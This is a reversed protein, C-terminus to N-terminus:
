SNIGVHAAPATNRGRLGCPADLPACARGEPRPAYRPTPVGRSCHYGPALAAPVLPGIACRDAAAYGIRTRARCARYRSERRLRSLAM